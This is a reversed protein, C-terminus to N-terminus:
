DLTAAHQQAPVAPELTVVARRGLARAYREITEWTPSAIGGELRAIASQSTGMRRGVEAQTLGSERRAEALTFALEMAPGIREYEARFAADQKWSAALEAFPVTKALAGADQRAEARTRDRPAATL